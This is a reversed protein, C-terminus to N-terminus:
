AYLPYRFSQSLVTMAERLPEGIENSAPELARLEREGLNQYLAPCFLFTQGQCSLLYFRSRLSFRADVRRRAMPPSGSPPPPASTAGALNTPPTSSSREPMIDFSEIIRDRRFSTSVYLADASICITSTRSRCHATPLLCHLHLHLHLHTVVVSSQRRRRRCRYPLNSLWTQISTLGSEMGLSVSAVLPEKGGHRRRLSHRANM